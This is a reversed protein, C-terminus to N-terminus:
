SVSEAMQILDEASLDSQICFIRDGESWMIMAGRRRVKGEAAPEGTTTILLGSQGRVTVQRFTTANMPVPVLLTSRWDTAKAIRKAERADLGLIRLGIEGLREIDWGAPLVVEPSRAQLLIARRKESRFRQMVVPPKRLEVWKGDLGEPVKVDDLDLSELLSRLKKGDVSVRATAEGQVFLSDAVLSDPLFGPASVAFGARASAAERSPAYAPPGPDVEKEERDFILFGREKEMSELLERRPEKIEVAAFRRVRFVDLLAQASVRVSPVAFVVTVAAAAALGAVIRITRRSRLRRPEEQRRLRERLESAFRPDPERRYEHLMRDDM